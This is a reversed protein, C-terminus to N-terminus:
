NAIRPKLVTRIFAALGREGKPLYDYVKHSNTEIPMHMPGGGRWYVYQAYALVEGDSGLITWKDASIYSSKYVNEHRLTYQSKSKQLTVRCPYGCGIKEEFIRGDEVYELADYEDEKSDPCAMGSARRVWCESVSSPHLGGILLVRDVGCVTRYVKVAAHQAAYTRYVVYSIAPDIVPYWLVIIWVVIRVIKKNRETNVMGPLKTVLMRALWIYLIAFVLVGLGIM